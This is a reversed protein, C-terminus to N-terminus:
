TMTFQACTTILSPLMRRAIARVEEVIEDNM